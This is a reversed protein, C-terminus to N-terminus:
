YLQQKLHERLHYAADGVYNLIDMYRGQWRRFWSKSDLGLFQYKDKESYSKWGYGSCPSCDDGSRNFGLGDCQECVSMIKLEECALLALQELSVDGLKWYHTEALYEAEITILEILKQKDAQDDFILYRGLYYSEAPLNGMGLAAAIDEWHYNLQGATNDNYLQNRTHGITNLLAPIDWIM